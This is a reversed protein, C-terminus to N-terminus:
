LLLGQPASDTSPPGNRLIQEWRHLDKKKIKRLFRCGYYCLVEQQRPQHLEQLLGPTNGGPTPEPVVRMVELYLPVSGATGPLSRIKLTLREGVPIGRPAGLLCGTESLNLVQCEVIKNLLALEGASNLEIRHPRRWLHVHPLTLYCRVLPIMLAALGLCEIVMLLSAGVTWWWPPSPMDQADGLFQSLVHLCATFHTLFWLTWAAPPYIFFGVCGAWGCAVSAMGYIWLAATAEGLGPAHWLLQTTGIAALFCEAGWLCLLLPPRRLFTEPPTNRQRWNELLGQMFLFKM